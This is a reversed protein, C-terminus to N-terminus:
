TETSAFVMGSHIWSHTILFKSSLCKRIDRLLSFLFKASNDYDVISITKVYTIGENKILSIAWSEYYIVQSTILTMNIIREDHQLGYETSPMLTRM